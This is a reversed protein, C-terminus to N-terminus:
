AGPRRVRVGTLLLLAALACGVTLLVLTSWYITGGTSAGGAAILWVVASGIMLLGTAVRATRLWGGIALGDWSSLLALLVVVAVILLGTFGIGMVVNLARGNSTEGPAHPGFAYFPMQVLRGFPIADADSDPGEADRFAPLVFGLLLCLTALLTAARLMLTRARDVRRELARHEAALTRLEQRVTALEARGHQDERAETM